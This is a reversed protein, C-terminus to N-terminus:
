LKPLVTENGKIEPSGFGATTVYSFCYAGITITFHIFSVLSSTMYAGNGKYWESERRIPIEEVM